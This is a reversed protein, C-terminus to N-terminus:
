NENNRNESVEYKGNEVHEKHLSYRSFYETQVLKM